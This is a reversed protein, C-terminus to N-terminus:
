PVHRKLGWGPDFVWSAFWGPFPSAMERLSNRSTAQEQLVLATGIGQDDGPIVVTWLVDMGHSGSGSVFLFLSLCVSLSLSVSLRHPPLVHRADQHLRSLVTLWDGWPFVMPLTLFLFDQLCTELIIDKWTNWHIILDFYYATSTPFSEM